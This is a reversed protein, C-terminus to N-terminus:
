VLGFSSFSDGLSWLGWTVRQNIFQPEEEQLAAAPKAFIESKDLASMANQRLKELKPDALCAMVPFMVGSKRKNSTVSAPLSKKGVDRLISKLGNQMLYATPIRASREVVHHDLLVPRTELNEMMSTRDEVHLLGPLLLLQDLRMLKRVESGRYDRVLDEAAEFPNYDGLERKLDPNLHSILFSSRDLSQARLHSMDKFMSRGLMRRTQEEFGGLYPIAELIRNDVPSGDMALGIEHSLAGALYKPYGCFFEDGGHGCLAAKVSRRVYRAMTRYPASYGAIPMDLGRILDIHDQVVEDMPLEIPHHDSGIWQAVADSETREDRITENQFVSSFTQLPNGGRSIEDPQAAAFSAVLSSDLGGSVFAGIPFDARSWLTVSQDIVDAIDECTDEYSLSDDEDDDPLSWYRSQSQAGCQLDVRLINGPLLSQVNEYLTRGPMYLQMALYDALGFVDIKPAICGSAFLAKIESSFGFFKGSNQYYLPKIGLRDRVLYLARQEWDVLAFAFFGRLRSVCEAGWHRWAALLVETDSHTRFKFGALALENRLEIFNVIEGNFVLTLTEDHDHLPQNAVSSVDLLTLRRHVLGVNDRMHLGQADRGRHEIAQGMRILANETIRESTLGVLGAIGCM